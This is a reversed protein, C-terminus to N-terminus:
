PRRFTMVWNVPDFSAGGDRSFDQTWVPHDLDRVDWRFRGVVSGAPYALTGTFTGIPGDFTGSVPDDLVGPLLSSAWWIRWRAGVPDFLRLSMGNFTTGDALTGTTEDLNGGGGLIPRASATSSFEVWDSKLNFPDRLRRHQIHWEGFLFDFDRFPDGTSM